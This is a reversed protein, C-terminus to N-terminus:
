FILEPKHRLKVELKIQSLHKIQLRSVLNYMAGGNDTYLNNAVCFVDSVGNKLISLVEM